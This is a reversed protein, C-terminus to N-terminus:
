EWRFFRVTAGLAVAAWTALIALPGGAAVSGDFGARFADTLAAAPLLRALAELPGPLHDVPVVMGGLLLLVLFLGNAVALTAEARLAGALLLGLGAFAATGLVFAAVLVLPQFGVAPAWGLLGAAIAVLVAAQLLEVVLLAGTKAAVLDSRTLPSGGLRKLVGYHREYATAIGLSVLSAAILALSLAGPLLFDVPRGDIALVPVSAFFLLVAAPILATVLLNEGRRAAVRLETALQASIAARHGAPRSM